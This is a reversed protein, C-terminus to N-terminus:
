TCCIMVDLERFNRRSIGEQAQRHSKEAREEAKHLEEKKMVAMRRSGENM